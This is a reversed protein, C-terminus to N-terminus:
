DRSDSDTWTGTSDAAATSGGDFSAHLTESSWATSRSRKLGRGAAAAGQERGAAPASAASAADAAAQQRNTERIMALVRSQKLV